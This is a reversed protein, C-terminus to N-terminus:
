RLSAGCRAVLVLADDTSKRYHELIREAAQQCTLAFPAASAFGSNIGDTALILVDNPTVPVIAASPRDFTAGVVGARQLLFERRPNTALDARLLVGQVNGVGLWTMTAGPLDFSAVAMVVGRTFRLCDHCRKLLNMVSEGANLSLTRAAIEAAHAAMRGHGLGDVVGVLVGSAFFSIAHRDGSLAQGPLASAAVGFEIPIKEITEM